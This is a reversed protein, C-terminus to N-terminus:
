FSKNVDPAPSNQTSNQAKPGPEGHGINPAKSGFLYIWYLTRSTGNELRHPGRPLFISHSDVPRSDVLVQRSPTYYHGTIWVRKDIVAGPPISFGPILVDGVASRLYNNRIHDLVSDNMVKLRRDELIVKCQDRIMLRQVCEADLERLSRGCTKDSLRLVPDFFVQQNSLSFVRDGPKLYDLCFAIRVLQPKMGPSSRWLNVIISAPHIWMVLLSFGILLTSIRAFRPYLRVYLDKLLSACAIALAPIAPLFTQYFPRSSTLYFLLGVLGWSAIVRGGVGNTGSVLLFRVLGAISLLYFLGNQSMLIWIMHSRAYPFPYTENVLNPVLFRLAPFISVDVFAQLTEGETAFLLYALSVALPALLLPFFVGFRRLVPGWGDRSRICLLTASAVAASWVLAKQTSAIGFGLAIASLFLAGIRRTKLHVVSFYAGLTTFLMGFVDHRIELGKTAFVINALTLSVAVVATLRDEIERTIRYVFFLTLLIYPLLFLRAAVVTETSQGFLHVLLSTAISFFPFHRGADSQYLPAGRAVVAGEYLSQFEDYNLNRTVAIQHFAIVTFVVYVLAAGCAATKLFSKNEVKLRTGTM